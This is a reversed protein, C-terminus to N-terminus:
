IHVYRPVDVTLKDVVDLNASILPVCQASVQEKRNELVGGGFAEVIMQKLKSAYNTSPDDYVFPLSGGIKQRTSSETLHSIFGKEYNNCVALAIRLLNSKGKSIPGYVVSIAVSGCRKHVDGYFMSLIAAALLMPYCCNYFIILFFRISDDIKTM